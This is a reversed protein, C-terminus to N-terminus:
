RSVGGHPLVAVRTRKWTSYSDEARVDMTPTCVQLCPRHSGQVSTDCERQDARLISGHHNSRTQPQGVGRFFILTLQSSSMGLQISFHSFMNWVVLWTIYNASTTETRKPRAQPIERIQLVDVGGFAGLHGTRTSSSSWGGHRIM